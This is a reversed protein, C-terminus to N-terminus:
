EASPSFIDDDDASSGTQKGGGGTSWLKKKRILKNRKNNKKKAATFEVKSVRSLLQEVDGPVLKKVPVKHFFRLGLVPQTLLKYAM